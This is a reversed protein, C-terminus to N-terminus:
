CCGGVRVVEDGVVVFLGSGGSGVVGGSGWVM